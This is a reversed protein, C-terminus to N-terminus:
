ATTPAEPEGSPLTPRAVRRAGADATLFPQSEARLLLEGDVSRGVLPYQADVRVFAQAGLKAFGDDRLELRRASKDVGDRAAVAKQSAPEPMAFAIGIPLHAQKVALMRAPSALRHM